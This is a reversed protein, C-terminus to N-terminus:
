GSFSTAPRGPRLQAAPEQAAAARVRALHARAVLQAVHDLEALQVQDLRPLHRPREVRQKAAVHHDIEVLRRLLRQEVAEGVIDHRVAVQEDTM